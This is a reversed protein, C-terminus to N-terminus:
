ETVADTASEEAVAAAAKAAKRRDREDAKPGRGFLSFHVYRKPYAELDALLSSLNASASTLNDYLAPDNMLRAVSGEGENIKDLTTNLKNIVSQLNSAVDAQALDATVTNVNLMISDLRETNRELAESFASLNAIIAALDQKNSTLVEDMSGTMSDLHTIVGHINRENADILGNVNDLTLSLNSILDTVKQKLFEYESGAMDMLNRDYGADIRDGSSLYTTASGLEIEIAKNGLFGNSFIKAKSDTPIDYKRSISM